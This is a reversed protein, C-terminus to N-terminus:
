FQTKSASKILAAENGPAWLDCQTRLIKLLSERGNKNNPFTITGGPIQYPRGKISAERLGQSFWVEDGDLWIMATQPPLDPPLNNIPVNHVRDRKHGALLESKFSKYETRFSHDNELPIRGLHEGSQRILQLSLRRGLMLIDLLHEGDAEDFVVFSIGTAAAEIKVTM